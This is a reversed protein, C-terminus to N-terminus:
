KPYSRMYPSSQPNGSRKKVFLLFAKSPIGDRGIRSTEQCYDDMDSLPGMHIVNHLAKCDVGMGFATTLFLIRLTGEPKSMSDLINCKIEKDTDAHFM